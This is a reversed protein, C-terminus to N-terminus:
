QELQEKYKQTKQHFTHITIKHKHSLTVMGMIFINNQGQELLTSTCFGAANGEFELSRTVAQQSGVTSAVIIMGLSYARM